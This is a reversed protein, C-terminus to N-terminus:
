KLLSGARFKAPFGRYGHLFKILRALSLVSVYIANKGDSFGQHKSVVM